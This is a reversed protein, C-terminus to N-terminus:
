KEPQNEGASFHLGVMGEESEPRQVKGSALCTAGRGDDSVRVNNTADTCFAKAGTTLMAPEAVIQYSGAPTGQCGSLAFRYDAYTGDVVQNDVGMMAATDRLDGLSCTFGKEPHQRAFLNEALALYTVVQETSLASRNTPQATSSLYTTHVDPLVAVAGDTDATLAESTGKLFMKQVFQPDGVPMDARISISNVRWIGQQLKMAVSFHSSLLGFENDTEKGDKFSHVSLAFTEEEGSLDDDDIRVEYKIKQGLSYTFLVDGTELGELGQAPVAGAMFLSMPSQGSNSKLLSQVEATLHKEISQPRNIIEILAQRATQPKPASIAPQALLALPIFFVPLLFRFLRSRSM